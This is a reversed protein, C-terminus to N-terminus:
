PGKRSGSSLGFFGVAPAAPESRRLQTVKTSFRAWVTPEM